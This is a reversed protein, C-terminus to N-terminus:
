QCYSPGHVLRCTISLLCYHTLIGQKNESGDINFVQRLTGMECKGIGLCRVMWEDMFNEIAGSDVLATEEATGCACKFTFPVNIASIKSVYM